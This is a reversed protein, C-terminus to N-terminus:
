SPPLWEPIKVNFNYEILNNDSTIQPCDGIEITSEIIKEIVIRPPTGFNTRFQNASYEEGLLTV